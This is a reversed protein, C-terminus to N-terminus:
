PVCLDASPTPAATVRYLRPMGQAAKDYTVLLDLGGLAGGVVALGEAKAQIDPPDGADPTGKFPALDALLAGKCGGGALDFLYVRYVFPGGPPPDQAPGALVLLRGADADLWALDRIGVKAGLKLRHVKVQLDADSPSFLAAKDVSLLYAEPEVPARLGVYIREADAALGEITLGDTAADLKRGYRQSVPPGAALLARNLHHTATLQGDAALRFLRMQAPRWDGKTRSCGHSGVVYYVGGALAVGEGDVEDKPKDNCGGAGLPRVPAAGLPAPAASFPVRDGPTLTKDQYTAFQAFGNEDSVFLCRRAGAVAAECAVGSLDLLPKPQGQKLESGFPAAIRVAEGSLPQARAAGALALAAAVGWALRTM